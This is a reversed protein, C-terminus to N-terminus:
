KFNLSSKKTWIYLGWRQYFKWLLGIQLSTKHSTTLLCVFLYAFAPYSLGKKSSTIIHCNCVCSCVPVRLCRLGRGGAMELGAFHVNSWLLLTGPSWRTYWLLHGWDYHLKLIKLSWLLTPRPSLLEWHPGPALGRDAHMIPSSTRWLSVVNKAKFTYWQLYFSM